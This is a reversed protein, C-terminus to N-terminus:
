DDSVVAKEQSLYNGVGTFIAMALRQQYETKTLNKEEEINSLFGVEITVAIMDTNKLIFYSQNSKAERKKSGVKNLNEQISEALGKGEESNPHYFVQPGHQRQDPFSNAHISLYIDAQTKVATQIRYALDERKRQMLKSSTGFDRDDERLMVVKSGAQSFLVQLRKSIELNVDKELTNQTGVAGPDVGGHGADILITRGGMVWSWGPVDEITRSARKESVYNGGVAIMSLILVISWVMRNNKLKLARKYKFINLKSL